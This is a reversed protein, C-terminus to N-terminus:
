FGYSFDSNQQCTKLQVDIEIRHDQSDQPRSHYNSNEQKTFDLM